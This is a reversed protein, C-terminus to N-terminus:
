PENLIAEIKPIHNAAIRRFREERMADKARRDCHRNARSRADPNKTHGKVHRFSISLDYQTVMRNIYGMVERRQPSEMRAKMRMVDIAHQCDLQFLVSDGKQVLGSTIAHWLANCAGMMEAVNNDEVEVTIAGGGGKKSRACAIWYGYGASKTKDCYSADSIITVLM